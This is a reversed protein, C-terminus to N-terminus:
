SMTIGSTSALPTPALTRVHNARLGTALGGTKVAPAKASDGGGCGWGHTGDGAPSQQFRRGGPTRRRANAAETRQRLKERRQQRPAIVDERRKARRSRIFDVIGTVNEIAESEARTGALMLFDTGETGASKDCLLQIGFRDVVPPGIGAGTAEFGELRPGEPLQEFVVRAFQEVLEGAFFDEVGDM